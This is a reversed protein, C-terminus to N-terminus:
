TPYCISHLDCFCLLPLVFCSDQESLYTLLFSDSSRFLFIPRNWLPMFHYRPRLFVASALSLIIRAESLGTPSAKRSGVISVRPRPVPIQMPGKVYLQNPAYHTEVDNLPRGLLSEVTLSTVHLTEEPVAMDQLISFTRKLPEDLTLM